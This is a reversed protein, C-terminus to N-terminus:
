LEGGASSNKKKVTYYITQVKIKGNEILFSDAGDEIATEKSNGTWHLFCVAGHCQKIKYEYTGDPLQRALLAAAQRVGDHGYFNGYNTLLVKDEAANRQLDEELREEQALKLHDEFVEYSNRSQLLGDEM